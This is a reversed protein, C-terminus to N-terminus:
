EPKAGAEVKKLVATVTGIKVKAEMRVLYRHEDNTLWVFSDGRDQRMVGEFRTQPRVVICDTEVGPYSCKEHRIVTIVAEWAKGESMVPVVYEKGDELPLHRIYYLVSFSDQPFPPMEKTEKKEEYGKTVHNRRNWYFVEKKESDYLELADRSQKTQDLVLHFRHSFLGESDWYSEMWDNVRYFLAFINSSQASGKLHFVKRGNVIKTPLVEATFEGAAMGLYTIQMTMKEGIWVPVASGRRDPIVFGTKKPPQTKKPKPVAKAKPDPTPEPTSKAEKVEFKQLLGPPVDKLESGSLELEKVKSVEKGACSFLSVLVLPLLLPRQLM